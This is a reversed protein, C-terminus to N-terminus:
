SQIKEQHVDLVTASPDVVDEGVWKPMWISKILSARGPFFEEFIQRYMFAEKTPPTNIPYLQERQEFLQDSINEDAYEIIRDKWSYGVGDSFAEKPRWLIENPLYPDDPTDFSKRLVFKEIDNNHKPHKIKPDLNISYNLFRKDLYPVRVELGWASTTRDSRLVDYMYHQSTRRETEAQFEELSPAYSFYLYGGHSEDPGEGTLIVTIDTNERIYKSLLYMPTSARITTVDYSELHWIVDRLAKIGDEINYKVEHHKTGLFNAVQRAYELDPADFGEVGIAFSHLEHDSIRSAISAVASSDFGGSIFLGVPRDSMLLRKEVSDTLLQNTTSTVNPTVSKATSFRVGFSQTFDFYRHYQGTMSVCDIVMYHGPLFPNITPCLEHLSKMESALGILSKSEPDEGIFMPRIGIPDRAAFMKPIKERFDVLVFSFVGDLLNVTQEIGYKEYLHVIIECDSHSYYNDIGLLKILDKYNYIEGNCIVVIREDVPHFLPQNSIEDLGNISLRHFGYTIMTDDDNNNYVDVLVHHDPGRHNIKVFEAYVKDYTLGTTKSIKRLLAFIGCM